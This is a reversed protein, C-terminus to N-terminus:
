VIAKYLRINKLITTNVRDNIGTFKFQLQNMNCRFLILISNLKTIKCKLAYNGTRSKSNHM